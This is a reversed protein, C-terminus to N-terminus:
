MLKSTQLYVRTRIHGVKTIHGITIRRIKTHELHTVASPEPRIKLLAGQTLITIEPL